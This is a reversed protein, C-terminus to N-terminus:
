QAAEITIQTNQYTVIINEADPFVAGIKKSNMDIVPHDKFTTKAGPTRKTKKSVKTKGDPDLKLVIAGNLPTVGDDANGYKKWGGSLYEATYTVGPLFGAASLYESHDLWIRRNGRHTGLKLTQTAIADTGTSQATYVKNTDNLM